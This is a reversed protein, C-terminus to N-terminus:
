MQNVIIGSEMRIPLCISLEIVTRVGDSECPIPIASYASFPTHMFWLLLGLQWVRNSGSAFPPGVSITRENAGILGPYTSDEREGGGRAPMYMSRKTRPILNSSQLM